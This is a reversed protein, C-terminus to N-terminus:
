KSTHSFIEFSDLISRLCPWCWFSLNGVLTAQRQCIHSLGMGVGPRSKVEKPLQYGNFDSKLNSNKHGSKKSNEELEQSL